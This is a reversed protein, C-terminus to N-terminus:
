NGKVVCRTLMTSKEDNWVDHKKVTGTLVGDQEQDMSWKHGRYFTKYKNGNEDIWIYLNMTGGTYNDPLERNLVCTVPIEKLREGVEGVFGSPPLNAFRENKIRQSVVRQYANIMSCAVGTLKWPVMNHKSVKHCNMLYDNDGIEEDTM